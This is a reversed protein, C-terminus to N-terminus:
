GSFSLFPPTPFLTLFFYCLLQIRRWIALFLPSRAQTLTGRHPSILALFHSPSACPPLREEVRCVVLVRSAPTFPLTVFLFLPTLSYLYSPLVCVAVFSISILAFLLLPFVFSFIPATSPLGHAHVCTHTHTHAQTQTQAKAHKFTAVRQRQVNVRERRGRVSDRSTNTSAQIHTHNPPASPGLPLFVVSCCAASPM